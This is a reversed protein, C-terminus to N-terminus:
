AMFAFFARPDIVKAGLIFRIKLKMVDNTFMAGLTPNDQRYLEPEERGDLYAVEITEAVNPDALFIAKTDTTSLRPTIFLRENNPGLLQYYPNGEADTTGDGPRKIETNLVRRAGARSAQGAVLGWITLGLIEVDTPTAKLDTLKVAWLGDEAARFCGWPDTTLNILTNINGRSADFVPSGDAWTPNSFLANILIIKDETVRAARAANDIMRRIGGIDDNRIAEMTIDITGGRKEPQYKVKMDGPVGLDQYPAGQDVVPLEGYGGVNGIEIDKFDRTSRVSSVIRRGIGPLQRFMKQLRRSGVQIWVNTWTTTALAAEEIGVLAPDVYGRLDSDGTIEVYAEQLGRFGPIAKEQDTLDCELLKAVGAELKDRSEMLVQVRTQAPQATGEGRLKKIYELERNIAEQIQETTPAKGQLSERIRTKAEEPLEARLLAAELQFDAVAARKARELAETLKAPNPVPENSPAPKPAPKPDPEGRSRKMSEAVAAEYLALAKDLDEAEVLKDVDVSELLAAHLQRVKELLKKIKEKMETGETGGCEAALSEALKGLTRGGASPRTVLDVAEIKTIRKVIRTGDTDEEVEAEGDISWGLAKTARAKAAGALLKDVWEMGENLTLTAVVGWEEEDWAPETFFGIITDAFGQPFLRKALAPLHNWVRQWRIARAPVSEFVGDAIAQKLVDESYYNGNLSRGARIILVRWRGPSAELLRVAFQGLLM